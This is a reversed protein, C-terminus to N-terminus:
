SQEEEEKEEGVLVPGSRGGEVEPRKSGGSEFPAKAMGYLGGVAGTGVKGLGSGVDYVVNFATDGVGKVVGGVTSGLGYLVKGTGDVVLAGMSKAQEKQEESMSEYEDQPIKQASGVAAAAQQSGGEAGSKAVHAADDVHEHEHEPARSKIQKQANTLVQQAEQASIHGAAMQQRLQRQVEILDTGPMIDLSVVKNELIKVM